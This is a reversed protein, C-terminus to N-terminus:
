TVLTLMVGALGIVLIVGGLITAVLGVHKNEFDHDHGESM